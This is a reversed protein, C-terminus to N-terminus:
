MMLWVSSTDSRSSTKNSCFSDPRKVPVSSVAALAARIVTGSNSVM